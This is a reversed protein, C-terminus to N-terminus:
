EINFSDKLTRVRETSRKIISQTKEDCEVYSSVGESGGEGGNNTNENEGASENESPSQSGGQSNNCSALFFVLALCLLALFIRKM